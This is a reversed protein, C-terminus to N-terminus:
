VIFSALKWLKYNRTEFAKEIDKEITTKMKINNPRINELLDCAMIFVDEIVEEDIGFVRRYLLSSLHNFTLGYLVEDNEINNANAQKIANELVYYHDLAKISGRATRSIGTQVIRYDYVLDKIVVIKCPMRFIVNCILTDEYWAGMPFRINKFIERKFIKGWAYGHNNVADRPSNEIVRPINLCKQKHEIDVFMNYSGVVIDANNEEMALMMSEIANEELLDDSDVFMIYKGVANNIGTNRAGSLGQNKQKIYKIKESKISEIIEGTKDTAGDNVIILEYTYKTKQNLISDICEKVYKEVNYAPMVISLDITEDTEKNINESDMNKISYKKQIDRRADDVSKIPKANNKGFILIFTRAIYYYIMLVFYGCNSLIKAIADSKFMRHFGNYLRRKM